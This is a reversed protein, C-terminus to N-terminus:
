KCAYNDYLARAAVLGAPKELLYQNSRGYNILVNLYDDMTAEEPLCLGTPVRHFNVQTHHMSTAGMIIGLCFYADNENINKKKSQDAAAIAARCGKMLHNGDYPAAATATIPLCFIIFLLLSVYTLHRSM